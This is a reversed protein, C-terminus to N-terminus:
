STKHHRITENPDYAVTGALGIREVRLGKQAPDEDANNNDNNAPQGAGVVGGAPGPSPLPPLADGRLGTSPRGNMRVDTVTLGAAAAAERVRETTTGLRAALATLHAHPTGIQRVAAVLDAPSPLPPGAPAQEAAPDDGPEAERTEDTSTEVKPKWDPHGIRYTAIVWVAALPWMFNSAADLIRLALHGVGPAFHRLLAAGATLIAARLLWDFGSAEGLWAWVGRWIRRTHTVGTRSIRRGLLWALRGSGCSIRHAARRLWQMTGPPTAPAEAPTAPENQESM